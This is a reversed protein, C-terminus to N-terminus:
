TVSLAGDVAFVTGSAYAAEPSTIQVIWWAIEEPRGVRGVPVRGRMAELFGAYDEESMGARVGAATDIVGPALGVVRIGRPGLEVAWSRTLLDLAAKTAGYVANHPWSRLGLSGASSVNVVVGGTAALDDLVAQTLMVPAVLNIALQAEVQARDLGGLPGFVGAGANNVLVDVRGFRQRAAEAVAEPVGHETLDASFPQIGDHGAATDKLAGADRGVVLVGWGREAYAHATARGIGSGGGTVIATRTM